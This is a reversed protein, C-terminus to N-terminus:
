FLNNLFGYRGNNKNHTFEILNTNEYDIEPIINELIIIQFQSNLKEMFKFLGNKISNELKEENNELKLSLIPSDLLLFMPKYKGRSSLYQMLTIAIITNFFARYGKGNDKKYKGDIIFDFDKEDFSITTVNYNCQLLNKRLLETFESLFEQLYVSPSFKNQEIKQRDQNEIYSSKESCLKILFELENKKDLQQQYINLEESLNKIKPKYDLNIIKINDEIKNQLINSKMKIEEIEKILSEKAFLLDNKQLLIKKYNAIAASTYDPNEHVFINNNCIPCKTETSSEYKITGDVIFNLRQLDGSYQSDLMNIKDLLSENESLTFNNNIIEKSYEKNKNSIEEIETEQKEIDTLLQEINIVLNEEDINCIENKLLNIRQTYKQIEDMLYSKVAQKKVKRIKDSDQPIENSFDNGTLFYILISLCLTKETYQPTLIPSCKNFIRDEDIFFMHNLSRWSLIQKEYSKNKVIKHQENIGLLKLIVSNLSEDYNNSDTIYCGTKINIYNSNVHIEKSSLKRVLEVSSNTTNEFLLLGISDYGISPNLPNEEAGFIYDICNLIMTKGTNSAGYIINIKEKFEVLSETQGNGQVFVKKIFFSM